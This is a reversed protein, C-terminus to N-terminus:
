RKGGLELNLLRFIKSGFNYLLEQNKYDRYTKKPLNFFNELESISIKLKSAVFEKETKIEDNTLPQKKLLELAKGRTMQNTLILSSFQVKRTDFGFRNLLWYGEYFRTFRSEFHKQNYPVWDIQKQLTRIANNKNYPVFDLLRLVKVNKFVPLYFKHWLISTIPYNKLKKSGFKNHIDRLQREDSQFYMWEKPNRICETSYNGGTLIFNIDHLNAYKYMTAFFAHDQPVDIHPVGSKLFAIQLDRVEEWDVVETFLDLDLHDLLKGINEVAIQSNWGADVHFILPRLKFKNKALYTLYSSDIGGSVGIICDYDKNKGSVRIKDLILELNNENNLKSKWKPFIDNYYTNCHDCVGNEDFIINQDTTDM